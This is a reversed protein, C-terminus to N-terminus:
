QLPGCALQWFGSQPPLMGWLGFMTHRRVQHKVAKADFTLLMEEQDPLSFLVGPM